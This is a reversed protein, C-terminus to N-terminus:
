CIQKNYGFFGLLTDLFFICFFGCGWFLGWLDAVFHVEEGAVVFDGRGRTLDEDGCGLAVVHAKEFVQYLVSGVHDLSVETEEEDVALGLM